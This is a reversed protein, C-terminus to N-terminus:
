WFAEMINEPATYIWIDSEPFHMIPKMEIQRTKAKEVALQANEQGYFLYACRDAEQRFIDPNCLYKYYFFPDDSYEWFGASLQWDSAIVVDAGQNWAGYLTTYGHEVLWDSVAYADEQKKQVIRGATPVLELACSLCFLVALFVLVARKGWKGLTEYCVATLFALLPFLMFYYIPRVLMTLMVDVALIALLSLAMLALLILGNEEKKRLIRWVLCVFGAASVLMVCALMGYGLPNHNIVLSLAQGIGNHLQQPYQSLPTLGMEGFIEVQELDLCRATILGVANAISIVGAVAMPKKDVPIRGMLCCLLRLVEVGILPLTMVATQRLSQIGTCFSLIGALILVPWVRWLKESRLYCGFVLFVTVAYCAYYSCMTFLLQWGGPNHWADGFLLMIGLFLVSGAMRAQRSKVVPLLMWHFSVLVLVTMVTSAIGMSLHPAGTMGYILAALVPTSAVYLQNGFVWGEPFVSQHKWAEMAYRIDTYMDSDYFGPVGSLNIMCVAGFYVLLMALLLIAPSLVKKKQEMTIEECFIYYESYIVTKGSFCPVAGAEREAFAKERIVKM